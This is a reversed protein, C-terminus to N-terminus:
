KKCERCIGKYYVSVETAQMDHPLLSKLSAIADGNIPVDYLKGCANCLFHARPSVDADFRMQKEDITLGLVVGHSVFLDMTNYITTKSLTPIFDHLANYMDDVTPHVRHTQLYYMLMIRKQSPRIGHENLFESIRKIEEKQLLEM